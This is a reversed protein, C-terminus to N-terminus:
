FKFGLTCMLQHRNLSVDVPDISANALTPNAAAFGGAPDTFRTDFAYFKASQMRYKYALDAYFKKHKFGFGFTLINTAGLTMYDTSTQYDMARSDLNFQDFTPNDKYRGSIFNYGARIAFKDMPKVEVGARVTHQARLISKTLQNMAVDKSNTYSTGVGNDWSTSMQTNATNAYEYEVGWALIKKVTSGLSFRARWPTRVSYEWYSEYTPTRVGTVDNNIDFLTSNRMNYWTPTEATFGIRLPNDAIPRVIFGWKVNVGVGKIERDNYLTYDGYVGVADSSEESYSSWSFYNVADIGFTLGTYFRDLVNFSANIDFGQMSGRQHRTYCSREGRFTNDYVNGLADKILFADKALGALNYDTDYGQQALETVQDMQSLGNLNANDAYFGYNYNAKKQYNFALNVYKLKPKDLNISWLGGAQDFSGRALIEGYTRADASNWGGANNPVVAGATLSIDSKRYLGMGAPNSGIVSLDAGLAGLAGGMAVFRATGNVDDTATLRDNIYTDQAKAISSAVLM